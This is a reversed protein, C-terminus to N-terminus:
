GNIMYKSSQSLAPDKSTCNEYVMHIQSKLNEEPIEETTEELEGRSRIDAM